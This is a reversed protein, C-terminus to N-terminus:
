SFYASVTQYALSNAKAKTPLREYLRKNSAKM